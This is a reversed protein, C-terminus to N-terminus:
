RKKSHAQSKRRASAVTVVGEKLLRLPRVFYYLPSLVKPLAVAQRDQENPRLLRVGFSLYVPLKDAFRSRMGARLHYPLTARELLGKDEYFRSVIETTLASLNRDSEVERRVTEPLVVDLVTEALKLGLLLVRTVRAREAQYLVTEWAINPQARLVEALDCLWTLGQWEHKAGHLCLLLLTDELAFSPVKQGLLEVETLRDWMAELELGTPFLERRVVDRHLELLVGTERHQLTAHFRSEASELLEYGFVELKSLAQEFERPRVIIDLDQFSRLSLDGYASVALVPGKYPVALVGAARLAALVRLLEAALMLNHVVNHRAYAGLEARVADPAYFGAHRHLLPTVGHRRAEALVKAWDLPLGVLRELTAADDPELRTRSCALLLRFEPPVAAPNM